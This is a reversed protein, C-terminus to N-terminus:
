SQKTLLWAREQQTGNQTDYFWNSLKEFTENRMRSLMFHAGYKNICQEFDMLTHYVWAEEENPEDFIEGRDEPYRFEDM